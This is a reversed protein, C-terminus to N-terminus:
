TDMMYKKLCQKAKKVNEAIHRISAGAEKQQPFFVESGLQRLRQRTAGQM